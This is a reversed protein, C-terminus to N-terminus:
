RDGWRFYINETWGHPKPQREIHVLRRKNLHRLYIKLTNENLGTREALQEINKGQSDLSLIIDISTHISQHAYLPKELREILFRGSQLIDFRIEAM